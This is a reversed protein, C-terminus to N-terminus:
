WKMNNFYTGQISHGLSKLIMGLPPSPLIVIESRYTFFSTGGTMNMVM